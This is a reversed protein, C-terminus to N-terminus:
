HLPDGMLSCIEPRFFLRNYAPYETADWRDQAADTNFAIEISGEEIWEILSDFFGDDKDRENYYEIIDVFLKDAIEKTFGEDIFKTGYLGDHPLAATKMKLSDNDTFSRTLKPTSANDYIFGPYFHFRIRIDEYDIAILGNKVVLLLENTEAYSKKLDDWKPIHVETKAMQEFHEQYEEPVIRVEHPMRRQIQQIKGKM